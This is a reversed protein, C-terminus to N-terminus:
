INNKVENKVNSVKRKEEIIITNKFCLISQGGVESSAEEPARADGADIGSSKNQSKPEQASGKGAKAALARSGGL